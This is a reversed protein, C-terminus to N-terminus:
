PYVRQVGTITNSKENEQPSDLPHSLNHVQLSFFKVNEDECSFM